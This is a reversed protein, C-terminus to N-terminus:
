TRSRLLDAAREAVAYVTANTNASISAPMVSADAVRLGGVGRVRLAPDVVAAEDTGTRCTGAYHSYSRLNRRLYAALQEDDRVAPGPLAEEGRWDALAPADGIERATRLGSVMADLDRRDSYYRPDLLPPAGPTGTALRVTGRSFPMMLGVMLTYGQGMGPGPLSDERLPVDVFQIHLDPGAVQPGSRILGQVEGHNNVAPPVPRAARYVIGSLPHDWLGAGVGPLDVVPDIGVRALHDRPGIGSLMLVQPSGVAGASLVVEGACHAVVTGGDAVYEVGTCRDGDLLVRHVLAGTVVHLNPRDLVPRLYAAAADQRRGDVINLDGWGFGEALGCAIDRVETHGAQVAAALGAEALPHREAAPAVRLPGDMGRVAPDRGPVGTLNESRKFYPLLDDYGWGTAGAAAWADYGSRHGRLFNMANISSSGGLGRGRPWPVALGATTQPVTTDAWDAATGLLTPWAPPVAMAELPERGGAELLLVRAGSEESLRAALVCGATGAGVVIYDFESASGM